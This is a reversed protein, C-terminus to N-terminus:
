DRFCIFPHCKKGMENNILMTETAKTVTDITQNTARNIDALRPLDKWMSEADSLLQQIKKIEKEQREMVPFMGHNSPFFTM